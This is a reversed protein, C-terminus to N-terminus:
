YVKCSPYRVYGPVSTDNLETKARLVGDCVDTIIDMMSVGDIPAGSMMARHMKLWLYTCHQRHYEWTVYLTTDSSQMVNVLSLQRRSGDPRQRWWQWEQVQLFEATLNYDYCRPPLWAFTLPDFECGLSRATNADNGCPSAEESTMDQLAASSVATDSKNFVHPEIKFGLFIIASGLFVVLFYFWLGRHLLHQREMQPETWIVTDAAMADANIFSATKRDDLETADISYRQEM